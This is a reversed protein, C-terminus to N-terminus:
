QRTLVQGFTSTEIMTVGASRWCSAVITGGAFGARGVRDSRLGSLCCSVRVRRAFSRLRSLVIRPLPDRLPPLPLVLPLLLLDTARSSPSSLNAQSGGTRSAPVPGPSGLRTTATRTYVCRLLAYRLLLNPRDLRIRLPVWGDSQVWRRKYEM